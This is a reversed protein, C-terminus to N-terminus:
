IWSSVFSMLEEYYCIFGYFFFSVYSKELVPVNDNVDSINITLTGTGTLPRNKPDSADGDMDTGTIM